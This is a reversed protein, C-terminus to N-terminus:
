PAAAAGALQRRVEYLVVGAAVAVNLSDAAGLMPVRVALDCAALAEPALGREENGVVVALPARYTVAWHPKDAQASTGVAMAGQARAWAVAARADAAVALPLRFATGLSARLCRRHAPDAGHGAVVVAAVGAGDATRLLAGLNGADAVSDAILVLADAPAAAWPHLTELGGPAWRVIAALGVPNDMDSLRAFRAAPLEVRAAGRATLREVAAWATESRLRAPCVLVAEFPLGAEEARLVAAIGEVVCARQERRAHRDALERVRAEWRRSSPAAASM